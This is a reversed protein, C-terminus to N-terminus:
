DLDRTLERIWGKFSEYYTKYWNHLRAVAHACAEIDQKQLNAPKDLALRPLGHLQVRIFKKNPPCDVRMDDEVTDRLKSSFADRNRGLGRLEIAVHGKKMDHAIYEKAGRTLREPLEFFFQNSNATRDRSPKQALKPEAKNAIAFYDDFFQTREDNNIREGGRRFNEIAHKFAMSRHEARQRLETDLCDEALDFYEHIVEEYAIEFDFAGRDVSELYQRPAVLVTMAANYSHRQAIEEARRRYRQPQNLTFQANIKDEILFLGSFPTSGNRGHILVELDSEGGSEGPYSVSHKAKCTIETLKPLTPNAKCARNYFWNVFRTSCCFEELLLLDIDWERVVSFRDM